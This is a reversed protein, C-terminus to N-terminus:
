RWRSRECRFDDHADYILDVVSLLGRRLTASGLGLARCWGILFVEGVYFGPSTPTNSIHQMSRVAVARVWHWLRMWAPASELGGLLTSRLYRWAAIGHVAM